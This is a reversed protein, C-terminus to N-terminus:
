RVADLARRLPALFESATRVPDAAEALAAVLASGVVVGDADAAMTGASAADKIGFGAVVPARAQARIRRLRETAAATDLRDSAGTVGAFSVYYLYGQAQECLAALRADSTTPAALAILDLGHRNFIARTEAAEEPPLDVLLVGDVGAAAAERAFRESGHIEVPNLYGMLVIPTDADTKRFGAVVQLVYRLGAGRALARESSRQITPGDAMPDSFPVGLEIVDAGAAVLAHLVPVTADLSPDGATVFPVLAKRGAASLAALRSAIRGM